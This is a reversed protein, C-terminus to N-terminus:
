PRRGMARFQLLTLAAVVVLLVVSQAASRGLDHNVHGDVFARYVLTETANAPGGRTLAHILGFSDFFAYVLNVVILFFLTPAILPLQISWAIRAKGAGDMEAAEILSRPLALLAAFAFIFNYAVQKWAAIGVVLLFAQTGNIRWDWGTDARVLATGILGVSPHLLFLWLVGATAPALAYPWTLLAQWVRKRRAGNEVLLALGVGVGLAFGAVLSAFVFSRVVADRYLPDEALLVYNELGVFILSTGFADSIHFSQWFAWAAPWLFFIGTVALQPALLLWPLVAEGFPERAAAERSM